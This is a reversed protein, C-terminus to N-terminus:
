RNLAPGTSDAVISRLNVYVGGVFTAAAVIRTGAAGHRAKHLSIKMRSTESSGDCVVGQASQIDSIIRASRSGKPDNETDLYQTKVVYYDALITGVRSDKSTEAGHV